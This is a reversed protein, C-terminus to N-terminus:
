HADSLIISPGHAKLCFSPSLNHTLKKLFTMKLTNVLLVEKSEPMAIAVVGNLISEGKSSAVSKM